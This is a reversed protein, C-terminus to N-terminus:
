FTFWLTVKYDILAMLPFHLESINCSQYSLLGRMEAAASKMASVDSGASGGYMWLGPRLEFDLVFKFLISGVRM